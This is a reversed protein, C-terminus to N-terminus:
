TMVAFCANDRCTVSRRDGLQVGTADSMSAGFSLNAGSQGVKQNVVTTRITVAACPCKYDQM